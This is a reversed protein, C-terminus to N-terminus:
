TRARSQVCGCALFMLVSHAAPPMIAFALPRAGPFFPAPLCFFAFVATTSRSFPLKTAPLCKPIAVYAHRAATEDAGRAAQGQGGQGRGDAQANLFRDSHLPTHSPFLSLPLLCPLAVGACCLLLRLSPLCAPYCSQPRSVRAPGAPQHWLVDFRPACSDALRLKLWFVTLRHFGFREAM